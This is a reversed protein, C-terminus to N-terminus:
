ALCCPTAPPLPPPPPVSHKSSARQKPPSRVKKSVGRGTFTLHVDQVSIAATGSAAAPAAAAASVAPQSSAACHRARQPALVVRPRSCHAVAASGPQQRQSHPFPVACLQSMGCKRHVSTDCSILCIGSACSFRTFSCFWHFQQAPGAASPLASQPRQRELACNSGILSRHAGALFALAAGRAQVCLIAAVQSSAHSAWQSRPSDGTQSSRLPPRRYKTTRLCRKTRTLVEAASAGRVAVAAAVEPGGSVKWLPKEGQLVDVALADM